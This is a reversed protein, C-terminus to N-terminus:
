RRGLRPPHRYHWSAEILVHTNGAKSHDRGAPHRRPLGVGRRLLLKVLRHRGRLLDQQADERARTFSPAKQKTARRASVANM